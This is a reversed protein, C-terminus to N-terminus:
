LIGLTANRESKMEATGMQSKIMNIEAGHVMITRICTIHAGSKCDVM